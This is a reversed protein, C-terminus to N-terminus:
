APHYETTNDLPHSTNLELGVQSVDLWCTLLSVRTCVWYHFYSASHILATPRTDLGSIKLTTTSLYDDPFRSFGVNEIYPFSFGPM